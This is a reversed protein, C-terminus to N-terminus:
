RGFVVVISFRLSMSYGPSVTNVRINNNAWEAALARSLHRVAAKSSNYFAKVHAFYAILVGCLYHLSAITFRGSDSSRQYSGSQRDSREYFCHDRDLGSSEWQEAVVQM